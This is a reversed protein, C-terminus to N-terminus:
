VVRTAAGVPAVAPAALAVPASALCPLLSSAPCASVVPAALTAAGLTFV